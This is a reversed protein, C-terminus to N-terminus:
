RLIAGTPLLWVSGTHNADSLRFETQGIPLGRGSLSVTTTSEVVTGNPLSASGLQVDSVEDFWRVADGDAVFRVALSGRTASDRAQLLSESFTRVGENFRLQQVYGTLNPAAIALLIGLIGIVILIEIM